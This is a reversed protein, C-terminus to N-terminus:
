KIFKWEPGGKESNTVGKSEDFYPESLLCSYTDTQTLSYTM